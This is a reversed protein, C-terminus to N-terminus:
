AEGKAVLPTKKPRVFRIKFRVFLSSILVCILSMAVVLDAIYSSVGMARSMSDAGVFVAAIFVAAVVVGVPSLGALMAVVVGTYGFGPSIDATLYGKLGAVESVGALGALAGSILGVKIFTSTVPIGAHKAASVNEGTARIEFGWVSRKMMIYIILASALAIVLGWHIRMRAFMKPLTAASTMPESQPWGMGMPDKMPGELMMQVFLLVVFNLLLTTVVEDAGLKTKLLTPVLMLIGGAIMGALIILPIMIYAPASIAGTGIAVAALAGVYLQGEAGINWLKARFAVSVALGTFILPTARALLESFAFKSGFAGKFTHGYAAFVEGGAAAIPIAALVLATIGAIIPLAFAFLSSVNTRPEFRIM